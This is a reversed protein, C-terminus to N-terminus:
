KKTPLGGEHHEVLPVRDARLEGTRQLTFEIRRRANQRTLLLARLVWRTRVDAGHHVWLPDVGLHRDATAHREFIHDVFQERSEGGQQHHTSAIVITRGMQNEIVHTSEGNVRHLFTLDCMRRADTDIAKSQM